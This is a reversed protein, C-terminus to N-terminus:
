GIYHTNGLNCLQVMFPRFASSDLREAWIDWRKYSKPKEAVVLFTAQESQFSNFSYEEREGGGKKREAFPGALWVPPILFKDM